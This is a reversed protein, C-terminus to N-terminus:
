FIQTTIKCDLIFHLNHHCVPVSFFFRYFDAPSVECRFATLCHPTIKLCRLTAHKFHAHFGDPSIVPKPNKIQCLFFFFSGEYFNERLIFQDRHLNGAPYSFKLCVICFICLISFSIICRLRILDARVSLLIIDFIDM